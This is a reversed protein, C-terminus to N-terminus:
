LKGDGKAKRDAESFLGLVHSCERSFKTKM